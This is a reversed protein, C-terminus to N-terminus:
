IAEVPLVCSQEKIETFAFRLWIQLTQSRRCLPQKNLLYIIQLLNEEIIM